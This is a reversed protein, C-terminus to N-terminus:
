RASPLKERRYVVVQKLYEKLREVNRNFSEDSKNKRRMDVAIGITRANRSSLGVAKLEEPNFGRGKRVKMNYRISM